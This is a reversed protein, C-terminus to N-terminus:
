DLAVASQMVLAGGRECTAANAQAIKELSFHSFLAFQAQARLARDPSWLFCHMRFSVRALRSTFADVRRCIVRGADGDGRAQRGLDAARVLRNAIRHVPLSQDIRGLTCMGLDLEDKLPHALNGYL